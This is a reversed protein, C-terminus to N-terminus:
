IDDACGNISDDVDKITSVKIQGSAAQSSIVIGQGNLKEHRLMVCFSGINDETSGLVRRNGYPITYVYHIDGVGCNWAWESGNFETVCPATDLSVLPYLVAFNYVEVNPCMEPMSPDFSDFQCEVDLLFSNVNTDAFLAIWNRNSVFDVGYGYPILTGGNIPDMTTKGALSNTQAQHLVSAVFYAADRLEDKEKGAKFHLIMVTSLTVIIATVVMMEVITFGKYNKIKSIFFKM